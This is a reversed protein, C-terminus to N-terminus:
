GAASKPMQMGGIRFIVNVNDNDIDVRKGLARVVNRKTDLDITQLNKLVHASFDGLYLVLLRLQQDSNAVENATRLQEEIRALKFRAQKVRPEFERKEIIGESYGDIMRAIANRLKSQESHLHSADLHEESGL